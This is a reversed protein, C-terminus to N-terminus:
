HVHGHSEFSEPPTLFGQLIPWWFDEPYGWMWMFVRSGETADAGCSAMALLLMSALMHAAM